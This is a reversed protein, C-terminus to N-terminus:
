KKSSLGLIVASSILMMVVGSLVVLVKFWLPVPAYSVGVVLAVFAILTPVYENKM